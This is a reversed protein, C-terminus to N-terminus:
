GIKENIKEVIKDDLPTRTIKVISRAVIYVSGWAAVVKAFMEPNLQGFVTLVLLVIDVLAMIWLETKTEKMPKVEVPKKRRKNKLWWLVKLLNFSITIQSMRKKLNM